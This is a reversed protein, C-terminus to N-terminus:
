DSNGPVKVGFLELLNLALNLFDLYLSLAGNITAYNLADEDGSAAYLNNRITQADWATIGIFVLVALASIVMTLVSSGVFMNIIMAIILAILAIFLYQGFSTIDRKTFYGYGSMSLFLIAASFLALFLSATTYRSVVSALLVGWITAFVGFMGTLASKSTGKRVSNIAIVLIFSTIILGIVVPVTQTVALLVKNSEVFLSVLGTYLLALFVYNYVKLMASNLGEATLSTSM